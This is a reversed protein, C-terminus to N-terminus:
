TQRVIKHWPTSAPYILHCMTDQPARGLRLFLRASGLAPGAYSQPENKYTLVCNFIHAGFSTEATHGTNRDEYRFLGHLWGDAEGGDTFDYILELHGYDKNFNRGTLSNIQRLCQVTTAHFVDLM